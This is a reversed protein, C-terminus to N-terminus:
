YIELVRPPKSPLCKNVNGCAPTKEGTRRTTILKYNKPGKITMETSILFLYGHEIKRKLLLRCMNKQLMSKECM